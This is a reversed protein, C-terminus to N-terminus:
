VEFLRQTIKEKKEKNYEDLRDLQKSDLTDKLKDRLRKSLNEYQVKFDDLASKGSKTLNGVLETLQNVSDELVPKLKEAQEETLQLVSSLEETLSNKVNKVAKKDISLLFDKFKLYEESNLLQKVKEETGKTATDLKASLEELRLFGEDISEKIDTKLQASKAEIEPKLQSIQERSLGSKEELESIIKESDFQEEAAFSMSTFFFLALFTFIRFHFTAM